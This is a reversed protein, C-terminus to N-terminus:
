VDNVLQICQIVIGLMPTIVSLALFAKNTFSTHIIRESIIESRKSILRDRETSDTTNRISENIEKLYTDKKEKMFLILEQVPIYALIVLALVFVILGIAAINNYFANIVGYKIAVNDNIIFLISGIIYLLGYSFTCALVDVTKMISINNNFDEDIYKIYDGKICWFIIFGGSLSMVFLSISQAWVLGLFLCYFCKGFMNLNHIWYAQENNKTIRFFIFGMVTGLILVFLCGLLVYRTTIKFSTILENSKKLSKKTWEDVRKPFYSSLFYSVFFLISLAISNSFDNLYSFKDEGVYLVKNLVMILIEISFIFIPIFIYLWNGILSKSLKKYMITSINVNRAIEFVRSTREIKKDYPNSM